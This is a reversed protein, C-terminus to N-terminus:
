DLYGVIWYHRLLFCFCLDLQSFFLTIANHNNTDTLIKLNVIIVVGLYVFNGEMWLSGGQSEFPIFSLTWLVFSQWIGYFIWKGFKYNTFLLNNLGICYYQPNKLLEEKPYEFDCVAFAIIAAATFLIGYFQYLWPDFITQGSFNNTFGFWFVTM